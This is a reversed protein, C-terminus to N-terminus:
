QHMRAAEGALCAQLAVELQRLDATFGFSESLTRGERLKVGDPVMHWSQVNLASALRAFEPQQKTALILVERAHRMFILNALNAGYPGAVIEAAAAYGRQEDFSHQEPDIAVFGHREFLAVVEAENLLPRDTAHRRALYLRQAGPRPEVPAVTQMRERTFRLGTVSPAHHFYSTTCYYLKRCELRVHAGHRILRNEAIGMASLSRLQYAAADGHLVIPVDALEAYAALRPLSGFFWAAYNTTAPLYIAPETVRATERHRVAVIIHRDSAVVGPFEPPLHHCLEANNYGINDNLLQGQATLLVNPALVIARDLELLRLSPPQYPAGWQEIQPLGAIFQATSAVAADDHRAIERVSAAQALRDGDVVGLLPYCVAPHSLSRIEHYKKVLKLAAATNGEALKLAAHHRAQEADAVSM